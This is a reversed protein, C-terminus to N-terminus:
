IAYGDPNQSQWQWSSSTAEDISLNAVWHLRENAKKPSAVSSAVDGSRRGTVEFALKHGCATEYAALLEKVTAGTGTGINYVEFGSQGLMADLAALHAKALDTVHIYDREGTGDRTEYDDGFIQLAELKGIAVQAIYPMLNNPIDHPDEGIRGSVHAGVPNFYRLATASRGDHAWDKLINEVMLKTQGYPNVPAAPHDEDLPLYQPAGYVTASSFFVIKKCDHADMAKLLEVSGAVNNEYYTLPQEVSEGVAKLGAFHIVAEPKFEAFAEDLADRDRIDGMVFGFDKNALQKVRSLAEEHGNSLNDIVFAEHGETLLEVLTHSGIYVAGGTVLVRM